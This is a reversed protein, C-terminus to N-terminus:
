ITQVGMGTKEINIDKSATDTSGVWIQQIAPIGVILGRVEFEVMESKMMGNTDNIRFEAEYMSGAPLGALEVDVTCLNENCTTTSNLKRPSDSKMEFVGKLKTGNQSLNHESENFDFATFNVTLNENNGFVHPWKDMGRYETEVQYTSMDFWFSGIDEGINTFVKTNAQCEGTVSPLSTINIVYVEHKETGWGETFTVNVFSVNYSFDLKAPPHGIMWNVASVVPPSTQSLINWNSPNRPMVTFTVPSGLEFTSSGEGESREATYNEGDYDVKITDVWFNRVEFGGWGIYTNNANTPDTIILDIGYWGTPLGNAGPRVTVTATSNVVFGQSVNYDTDSIEKFLQDNWIKDINVTLGACGTCTLLDSGGDKGMSDLISGKDIDVVKVQLTINDNTGFMCQGGTNCQPEAWIMYKKLMFAAKGIGEEVSGSVNAKFKFRLSFFGESSPSTFILTGNEISENMVDRYEGTFVDSFTPFEQTMGIIKADTINDAPIEERTALDQIRLKIRITSNPAYFWFKDGKFDVSEGKAILSQVSFITTGKTLNGSNNVQIVAKYSTQKQPAEFFIACQTLMNQPPGEDDGSPPNIAIANSLNMITTNVSYTKGTDDRLEILTVLSACEDQSTSTNDIDILAMGEPGMASMGGESINSLVTVLTVNTNPAFSGVTGGQGDAEDIFDMNVAMIDLAVERIEFGTIFSQTDGSYVGEMKIGYQGKPADAPMDVEKSYIGDSEYILIYSSTSGNPYKLTFTASTLNILTGDALKSVSTIKVTPNPAFVFMPNGSPDTVKGKLKFSEVSFFEVGLSENVSIKYEGTTNPATFNSKYIGYQNTTGSDTDLATGTSDELEISVDVGSIMAGNEDRAVIVFNVDSSATYANTTVPEVLAVLDGSSIDIHGIILTKFKEGMKLVQEPDSGSDSDETINYLFFDNDDDIYVIDYIGSLYQDVLVFSYNKNNGTLNSYNGYHVIGSLSLAVLESVNGGVATVNSANMTINTSIGIPESTGVLQPKLIIFTAVVRFDMRVSDTGDSVIVYYDGAATNNLDYYITFSGSGDSESTNSGVYNLSDRLTATMNTNGAGTGTITVTDNSLYIIKDTSASISAASVDATFVFFMAAMLAIALVLSWGRM